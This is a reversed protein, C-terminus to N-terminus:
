FSNNERRKFTQHISYLILTLEKFTQHFKDTVMSVQLNGRCDNWIYKLFDYSSYKVARSNISKITGLDRRLNM